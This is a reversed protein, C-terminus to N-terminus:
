GRSPTPYLALDQNDAATRQAKTTQRIREVCSALASGQWPTDSGRYLSADLASIVQSLEDDQYHAAVHELTPPKQTPIAVTAWAIFAKRAASADGSECKAQLQKFARRESPNELDSASQGRAAGPQQKRNLWLFILTALWGLACVATLIQWLLANGQGNAGTYAAAGPTADVVSAPDTATSPDAPAVQLTKEPLVAYRMQETRTDWWPIRLEPLTWSGESTPVIATADRRAGLLGSSVEQELIEPQDPYFKLGDQAPYLVPPLQAGQIGEGLITITRTVSEGAKLADSPTSWREEIKLQQAPLWTGGTFSPPRPKVSLTIPESTRRMLRGANQSFFGGRGTSVRSSFVQSPITLSGSKEPFIAYRLEHVRWNRGDITRYFENTELQKVFAGDLELTPVNMSSLEIAQQIRLTLIIQSQVYATKKDVEAEFVVNSGKSNMNPAPGVFVRLPRTADRGASFSPIRLNGERLPALDVVLKKEHTRSGNIIKISSNTSRRLVDFDTELADLNVDSLESDGNASITLQLSDGLAVQARDIQATLAALSPTAYSVIAILLLRAVLAISKGTKKM